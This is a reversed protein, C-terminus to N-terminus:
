ENLVGHIIIYNNINDEATVFIDKEFIGMSFLNLNTHYITEYNSGNYHGIGKTSHNIFDSENRGVFSTIFDSGSFDKWVELKNNTYEYVVQNMNFYVKGDLKSIGLGYDTTHIKEIEKGDFKFIFDTSGKSGHIFFLNSEEEYIIQHFGDEIKPIDIFNWKQGDFHLIIGIYNYEYEPVITKIAWGVAYINKKALGCFGFIMIKDFGELELDYSEVWVGNERNFIKSESTGVFLTEDHFLWLATAGSYDFDVSQWKSGNYNWLSNFRRNAGLTGLWVNEVSNGKIDRYSLYGNAGLDLTDETWVYDRRGAEFKEPEMGDDCSNLNLLSVSVIISFLIRSLISSYKLM